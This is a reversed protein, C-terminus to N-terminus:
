SKWGYVRTNPPWLAAQYYEMQHGKWWWAGPTPNLHRTLTPNLHRTLTPNLHRTLTPNLHRTLTPNLHRTLMPNLHRTISPGALPISGPPGTVVCCWAGAVSSFGHLAALFMSVMPLPPRSFCSRSIQLWGHSCCLLCYLCQMCMPLLCARRAHPTGWM